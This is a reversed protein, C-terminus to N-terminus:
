AVAWLAVGAAHSVELPRLPACRAAIEGATLPRDGVRCSGIVRGDRMLVRALTERVPRGEDGWVPNGGARDLAVVLRVSGDKLPLDAARAPPAILVAYGLAALTPSAVGDDTLILARDPPDPMHTQLFAEEAAWAANVTVPPQADDARSQCVEYWCENVRQELSRLAPPYEGTIENLRQNMLQLHQFVAAFEHQFAATFQHNFRTQQDLWPNLLKKAARRALRFAQGLLGPRAPPTPHGLLGGLPWLPAAPDGSPPLAPLPQPMAIQRRSELGHRMTAALEAPSVTGRGNHHNVGIM